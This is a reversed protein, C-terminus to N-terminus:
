FSPLLCQLTSVTGTGDAGVLQLPDVLDSAVEDGVDGVFQLGRRRAQLKQGFAQFLGEVFVGDLCAEEGGL